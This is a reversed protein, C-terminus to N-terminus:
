EEASSTAAGRTVLVADGDVRVAHCAVARTAPHDVCTGTAPDFHREHWPCRLTGNEVVGESLPGGSHPCRDDVAYLVGRVRLLAVSAGGADAKRVSGEPIEGASAVRYEPAAM